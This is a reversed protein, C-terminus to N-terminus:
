PKTPGGKTRSHQLTQVAGLPEQKEQTLIEKGLADHDVSHESGGDARNFLAKSIGPVHTFLSSNSGCCVVHLENLRLESPSM